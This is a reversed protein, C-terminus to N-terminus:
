KLCWILETELKTEDSTWHGYIEIYPLSTEIGKSKLEALVQTGKNGIQQYPGIHKYYAYKSLDINKLELSSDIQPVDDLEVGTFMKYGDEYVWINLGKHRLNNAKIKEWLKNMLQSGTGSWNKNIVTASFGYVAIKLPKDIIQIEM